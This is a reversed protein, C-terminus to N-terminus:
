LVEVYTGSMSCSARFAADYSDFTRAESRKSVWTKGKGEGIFADAWSNTLIFM